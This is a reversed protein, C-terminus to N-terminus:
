PAYSYVMAETAREGSLVVNYRTPISLDVELSERKGRIMFTRKTDREIGM